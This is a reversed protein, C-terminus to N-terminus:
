RTLAVSSRAGTIVHGALTDVAGIVRGSEVALVTRWVVIAVNVDSTLTLIRSVNNYNILM